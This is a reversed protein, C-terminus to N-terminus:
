LAQKHKNQNDEDVALTYFLARRYIDVHKAKNIFANYYREHENDKFKM